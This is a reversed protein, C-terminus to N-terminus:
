KKLLTDIDLLIDEFRNNLYKTADDIGKNYLDKGITQLFHTLIHEAAIIGITENRERNFFDILDQISEKRKESSLVDGKRHVPTMFAM